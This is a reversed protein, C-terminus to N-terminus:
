LCKTEVVADFLRYVDNPDWGGDRAINALRRLELNKARHRSIERQLRTLDAWADDNEGEVFRLRDVEALLEDISYTRSSALLVENRRARIEELREDTLRTM